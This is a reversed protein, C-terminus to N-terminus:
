LVIILLEAIKPMTIPDNTPPLKMVLPLLSAKIMKLKRAAIATVSVMNSFKGNIQMPLNPKPKQQPTKETAPGLISSSVTGIWKFELKPVAVLVKRDPPIIIATTKPAIRGPSL